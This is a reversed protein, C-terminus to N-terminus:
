LMPDDKLEVVEFERLVPAFVAESETTLPFLWQM